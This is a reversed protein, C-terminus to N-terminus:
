DSRNPLEPCEQAGRQSAHVFRTKLDATKAPPYYETDVTPIPEVTFILLCTKALFDIIALALRSGLYLM